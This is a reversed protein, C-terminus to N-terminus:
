GIEFFRVITPFHALNIHIIRILSRKASHVLEPSLTLALTDLRGSTWCIM